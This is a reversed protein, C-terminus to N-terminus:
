PELLRTLLAVSAALQAQESPSFRSQISRALWDEKTARTETITRRAHDSLHWLTKRGDDPDPSSTVLGREELSSLVPGMSQPKMGEARALETGTLAGQRELRAIVASQALTFDGPDAQEKLKRRLQGVLVRLSVAIQQVTPDTRITDAM